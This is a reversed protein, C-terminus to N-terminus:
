SLIPVLRILDQVGLPALLPIPDVYEGDLKAGLHLHPVSAGPPGTGTSGIPQGRSVGDGKSL